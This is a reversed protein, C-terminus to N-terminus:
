KRQALRRGDWIYTLNDRLLPKIPEYVEESVFEASRNTFVFERSEPNYSCSVLMFPLMAEVEDRGNRGADAAMWQDMGPATFSKASLEEWGTNYLTVKSDPVPTAVTHIVAIVTDNGAPLTVIEVTSAATAEIVIHEPTLSTIRSNGYLMNRSARDSGANFYDIMDLRTTPEILPMVSRPAGAFAEAATIARLSLPSALLASTIVSLIFRQKM